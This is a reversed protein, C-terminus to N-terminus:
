KCVTAWDVQAAFGNSQNIRDFTTTLNRKKQVDINFHKKKSFELLLDRKELFKNKTDRSPNHIVLIKYTQNDCFM